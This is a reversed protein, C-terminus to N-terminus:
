IVYLTVCFALWTVMRVRYNVSSLIRVRNLRDQRDMGVRFPCILSTEM